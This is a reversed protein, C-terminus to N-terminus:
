FGMCMAALIDSGTWAIALGTTRSYNTLSVTTTTSATQSTIFSAPTTVDDFQCNWGTTAAPMAIVGTSAAGGTGVNIRFAATGNAITISPTGGFGSSITPITTSVVVSMQTGSNALILSASNFVVGGNVLYLYSGGNPAKIDTSDADAQFRDVGLVSLRVDGAGARYWGSSQETLFAVAPAAATGNGFFLRAYTVVGNVRVQGIVVVTLMLVAAVMALPLKKNRM